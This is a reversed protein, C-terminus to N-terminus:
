RVLPSGGALRHEAPPAGVSRPSGSIGTYAWIRIRVSPEDKDLAARSFPRRERPIRSGLGSNQCDNFRKMQEGAMDILQFTLARAILPVRLLMRHATEGFRSCCGLHQMHRAFEYLQFASVGVLGYDIAAASLPQSRIAMVECPLRPTAATRRPLAVKFTSVCEAM